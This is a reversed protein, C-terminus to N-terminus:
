SPPGLVILAVAGEVDLRHPGELLVADRADLGVDGIAATGSLVVALTTAPRPPVEIAGTRVVTVEASVRGRRTMVNLDRVPGSTLTCTFPTEGPFAFPELEGIRRHERDTSLIVATGATLVLIRDIGPMVSFPGDAEVDALSIRWDFDGSAPFRAIEHSTGGGNAWPMATHERLVELSVAAVSGVVM